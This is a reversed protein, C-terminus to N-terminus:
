QFVIKVPTKVINNIWLKFLWCIEILNRLTTLLFLQLSSRVLYIINHEMVLSILSRKWFTMIKVEINKIFISSHVGLLLYGFARCWFLNFHSCVFILWLRMASCQSLNKPTESASDLEVPMFLFCNTWHKKTSILVLCHRYICSHGPFLYASLLIM